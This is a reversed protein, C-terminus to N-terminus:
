FLLQINIFFLGFISSFYLLKFILFEGNTDKDSPHPARLVAQSYLALAARIDDRKLAEDGALRRARADKLSKERYLSKVHSLTTDLCKRM